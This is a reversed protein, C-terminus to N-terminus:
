KVRYKIEKNQEINILRKLWEPLDIQYIEQIIGNEIYLLARHSQMSNDFIIAKDALQLAKPLNTLSRSYRREIDEISIYHGGAKIREQVRQFSDKPTEIGVYILKINYGQEKAIQITRLPRHGTLTTEMAFSKKCSLYEYTLRLAIKGARVNNAKKTKESDSQKLERAIEDPNILPVGFILEPDTQRVLTTKGAGNPGAIVILYPKNDIM